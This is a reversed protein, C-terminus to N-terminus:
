CYTFFFFTRDARKLYQDCPLPSFLLGLYKRVFGGKAPDLDMPDGGHDRAAQLHSVSVPQIAAGVTCNVGALLRDANERITKTILNM